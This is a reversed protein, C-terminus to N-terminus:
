AFGYLTLPEPLLAVIRTHTAYNNKIEDWTVRKGISLDSSTIYSGVGVISKYINAYVSKNKSGYRYSATPGFGRAPWQLLLNIIQLLQRKIHLVPLLISQFALTVLVIM